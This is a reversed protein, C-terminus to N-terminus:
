AGAEAAPATEAPWGKVQSYNAATLETLAGDNNNNKVQVAQASVHVYATCNQYSNDMTGSFTVNNFLPPTTQGTSVPKYYYYYGDNGAIWGDQIDFLLMGKEAPQPSVEGDKRIESEVSVRIWAPGSDDKNEVEVIKSVSQGPMVGQIGDGPWDVKKGDIM